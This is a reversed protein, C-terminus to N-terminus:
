YQFIFYFYVIINASKLVSSFVHRGMVYLPQSSVQWDNVVSFYPNLSHCNCLDKFCTFKKKKFKLNFFM